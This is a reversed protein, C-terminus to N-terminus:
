EMQMSKKMTVLEMNLSQTVMSPGRTISFSCNKALKECVPNKYPVANGGSIEILFSLAKTLMTITESKM